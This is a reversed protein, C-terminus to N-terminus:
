RPFRLSSAEVETAVARKACRRIVVGRKDARVSARPRPSEDRSLSM